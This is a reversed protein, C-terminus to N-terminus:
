KAVTFPKTASWPGSGASNWARVSAKYKGPALTVHESHTGAGKSDVHSTGTGQGGAGVVLLEYSTAGTVAGWGFDAFKSHGSVSLGPATGPKSGGGSPAAVSLDVVSGKQVKTGGGPTQGNVTGTQDSHAGPVLGVARIAAVAATVTMGKVNPVTATGTTTTSGSTKISPPFGGSGAVPPPGGIAIADDIYQKQQASVSDGAIYLGVADARGSVDSFSNDSFYQLVYQSWQANTTFPPGTPTTGGGPGTGTYGENGYTNGTASDMSYPDNPNNYTGDWPYAASAAITGSTGGTGGYPLAGSGSPVYGAAEDGYTVGTSPDVSNPDAPNGSTGDSPYPDTTASTSAKSAKRRQWWILALVGGVGGVVAVKPLKGVGPVKVDGALPNPM